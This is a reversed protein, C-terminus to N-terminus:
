SQIVLALLYHLLRQFAKCFFSGGEHDGVSKGCYAVTVADHDQLLSVDDLTTGVLLQKCLLASIILQIIASGPRGTIEPCFYKLASFCAPYMKTPHSQM